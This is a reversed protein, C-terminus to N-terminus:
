QDDSADDRGEGRPEPDAFAALAQEPDWDELIRAFVFDRGSGVERHTAPLAASEFAVGALWMRGPADAVGAATAVLTRCDLGLLQAARAYLPLILLVDREDVVSRDVLSLAVLGYVLREPNAERVALSAMGEAWGLLAWSRSRGLSSRVESKAGAQLQGFRRCAAFVAEDWRGGLEGLLEPTRRRNLAELLTM